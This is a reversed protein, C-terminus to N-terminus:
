CNCEVGETGFQTYLPTEKTNFQFIQTPRFTNPNIWSPLIPDGDSIRVLNGKKLVKLGTGYSPPPNTGVAIYMTKRVMNTRVFGKGVAVPDVKGVIQTGICGYGNGHL